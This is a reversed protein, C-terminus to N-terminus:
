LRTLLGIMLVGEQVALRKGCYNVAVLNYTKARSAGLPM